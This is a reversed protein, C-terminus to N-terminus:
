FDFDLGYIAIGVASLIIISLIIIASALAISNVTDQEKKQINRVDEKKIQVTDIITFVSQGVKKTVVKKYLILNELTTDVDICYNNDPNQIIEEITINRKLIYMTSDYTNITIEDDIEQYLDNITIGKQSYCGCLQLLLCPILIASIYRKM